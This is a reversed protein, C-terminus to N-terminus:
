FTMQEKFSGLLYRILDANSQVYRGSTTTVAMQNAARRLNELTRSEDHTLQVSLKTTKGNLDEEDSNVYFLVSQLSFVDKKQKKSEEYKKDAAVQWNAMQVAHQQSRFLGNIKVENDVWSMSSGCFLTGMPRRRSLYYGATAKVPDGNKTKPPLMITREHIHFDEPLVELEEVVIVDDIKSM